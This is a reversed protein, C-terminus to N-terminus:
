PFIILVFELFILIFGSSKSFAIKFYLSAILNKLQIFIWNEQNIIKSIKMLYDLREIYISTVTEESMSMGKNNSLILISSITEEPNRILM